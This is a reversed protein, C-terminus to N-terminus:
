TTEVITLELGNLTGKNPDYQQSYLFVFSTRVEALSMQGKTETSQVAGVGFFFFKSKIEPKAKEIQKSFYDFPVKNEDIFVTIYGEARYNMLGARPTARVNPIEIFAVNQEEEESPADFTARPLMFIEKIYTLLAEKFKMQNEM